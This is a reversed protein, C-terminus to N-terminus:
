KQDQCNLQSITFLNFALPIMLHNSQLYIITRGKQM